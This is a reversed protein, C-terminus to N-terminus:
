TSISCAMAMSTGLIPAWERSLIGTSCAPSPRRSIAGAKWCPSNSGAPNRAITCSGTLASTSASTFKRCYYVLADMLGDENFDGAVSGMPATTKPDFPLPAADLVFPQYREGTGPAPAVTVLDARPDVHILDNALGDGDLDAFTAAAGLTSIWASIRQLSPHVERVPVPKKPAGPIEALPLKLFHFRSALREAEESTMSEPRAVVYLGAVALAATISAAYRRFLNM